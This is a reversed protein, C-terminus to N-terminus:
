RYIVFIQARSSIAPIIEGGLSASGYTVDTKFLRGNPDTSMDRRTQAVHLALEFLRRRVVAVAATFLRVFAARAQGRWM